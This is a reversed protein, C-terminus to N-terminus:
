RKQENILSKLTIKFGNNTVYSERNFYKATSLNILVYCLVLLHSWWLNSIIKWDKWDNSKFIQVIDSFLDFGIIVGLLESLSSLDELMLVWFDNYNKYLVALYSPFILNKNWKDKSCILFNLILTENIFNSLEDFNIM